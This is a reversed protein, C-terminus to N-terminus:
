CRCACSRGSLRVHGRCARARGARQWGRRNRSGGRHRRPERGDDRRPDAPRDTAPEMAIAALVGFERRREIVAVAMTDIVAVAGLLLAFAAIIIAARTIIRGNTDVRAVEGPDGLALTGPIVREITRELDTVRYGPAISVAVM